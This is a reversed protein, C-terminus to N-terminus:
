QKNQTLLKQIVEPLLKHEEKLVRAALSEADDGPLVPVSVQDIVTGADYQDNVYHVSCGTVQEGSDLVAQHVRSGYLGRGGYKPLLSPHINIIRGQYKRIVSSPIKKLFGALIILDPKWRGLVELLDKELNRATDTQLIHVPINHKEARQIAKIGPRGAILGAIAAGTITGDEISNIISQFNSGSGSALVVLKQM